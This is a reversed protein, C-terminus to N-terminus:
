VLFDSRVVESIRMDHPEAPIDHVIQFPYAVGLTPVGDRAGALLRDYWGGGYGLRRGDETFALGPVIWAAIDCPRTAEGGVPEAIGMPGERLLGDGFGTLRVLDYSVGNWRPVAVAVGRALLAEIAGRVDVEVSTALYAAVAAGAPIGALRAVLRACIDADAAAKAAPSIGARKARMARRLAMKGDNGM